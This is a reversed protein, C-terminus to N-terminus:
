VAIGHPHREVSVRDIVKKVARDITTAEKFTVCMGTLSFEATMVTSSGVKRKKSYYGEEETPLLSTNKFVAFPM